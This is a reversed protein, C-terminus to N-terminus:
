SVFSLSASCAISISHCCHHLRGNAFTHYRWCSDPYRTSYPGTHADLVLCPSM